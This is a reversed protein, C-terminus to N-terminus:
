PRHTGVRMGLSGGYAEDDAEDDGIGGFRLDPRALEVVGGGGALTEFFSSVLAPSAAGSAAAAAGLVLPRPPLRGPLRPAAPLLWDSGTAMAASAVADALSLTAGSEAASCAAASSAAALAAAASSAALFTRASCAALNWTWISSISFSRLWSASLVCGSTLLRINPPPHIRGCKNLKHGCRSLSRRSHIRCEEM